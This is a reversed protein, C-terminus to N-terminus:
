EETLKRGGDDPLELIIYAGGTEWHNKFQASERGEYILHMRTLVNRIGYHEGKEDVIKGGNNLLDMIKETFGEGTDWIEIRIRHDDPPECRSAVVYIETHGGAIMQYKVTNEVFIQIILPPVLVNEVSPDIEIFAELSDGFRLEQIHMYNHVYDVEKRLTDVTTGEMNYRLQNGLYTTMDRILDNKNMISLNHIVNLCNIYFHPKTQLKMYQLEAKQQQLEAKQYNLEAKQRQVKQEYVDIKLAEINETMEDFTENMLNFESCKEAKGLHVSFDGSKLRNMADCLRIVPRLIWQRCLAVFSFFFIVLCIGLILIIKQLAGLGELISKDRILAVMSYNGSASPHTIVLYRNGHIVRSFRQVTENTSIDAKMDSLVTGMEAGGNEYFTLYDINNYGDSRVTQALRSVNVCGGMYIGMYRFIRVLYFHGQYELCQWQPAVRGDAMVKKLEEMVMEKILGREQSTILYKAADRYTDTGKYYIFLSDIYNYTQVIGSMDSILRKEALYYDIPHDEDIKQLTFIDSSAQMGAWYNEMVELSDDIQHMYMDMMQTNADFVNDRVVSIAYANNCVLFVTLMFVALFVMFSIRFHLTKLHEMLSKRNKKRSM